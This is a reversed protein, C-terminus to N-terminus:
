KKILSSKLSSLLLHFYQFNFKIKKINILIKLLGSIYNRNRILDFESFEVWSSSWLHVAYSNGTIYNNYNKCDNKNSYPLPYFYDYSYISCGNNKYIKDFNLFFDYHKRFEDTVIRPITIVNFDIKALNITDYFQLCKKLFLDNKESGIIGCSIFKSNEAGFFIQHHHLDEMKKFVLMDTDLYIGGFEILKQLRIFDAVFAWKKLTIVENVFPHSLDCNQENWEIIQYDPMFKKWSAICDIILKSKKQKGFWCYHIIKPIM